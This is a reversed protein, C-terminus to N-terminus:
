ASLLCKGESLDAYWPESFTTHRPEVKTEIIVEEAPVSTKHISRQEVDMPEDVPVLKERGGTM